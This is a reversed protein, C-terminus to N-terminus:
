YASYRKAELDERPSAAFDDLISQIILEEVSKSM